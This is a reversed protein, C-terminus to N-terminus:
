HHMLAERTSMFSAIEDFSFPVHAGLIKHASDLGVDLIKGAGQYHGHSHGHLMFSGWRQDAWHAFPFHSMRVKHRNGEATELTAEKYWVREKELIWHDHNGCILTYNCNIGALLPLTRANNSFSTDGLLTLHDNPKVRSNIQSIVWLDHEEASVLRDTVVTVRKHFFHLDASFYEM